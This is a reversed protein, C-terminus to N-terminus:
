AQTGGKNNLIDNILKDRISVMLNKLERTAEAQADSSQKLDRGSQTNQSIISEYKQLQNNLLTEIDERHEVQQDILKKQTDQDKKEYLSQRRVVFVVAAILWGTVVSLATLLAQTLTISTDTQVQLFTLVDLIIFSLAPVLIKIAM